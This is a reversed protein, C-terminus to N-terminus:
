WRLAPGGLGLLLFLALGAGLHASLRMLSVARRLHSPTAAAGPDGIFPKPKLVGFYRSPGGLRIGLAGAMAAEPRGANPSDHRGGDRILIEAAARGRGRRLAAAAVILWATLRAPVYNALDDLRAAARGFRLYRPTKYGVMSDLTNVAKYAIALPPGGLVLFFLPAIVGDSANEAVSEIAARTVDATDLDGTERSVLAAVATRAAALDGRDIAEAVALAADALSRAALVTATLYIEVASGAIPHFRHAAAIAVATLAFAVPVIALVLGGGAVIEGVRPVARRRLVAEARTVASGIWRVPHPLWAPDGLVRDLLYGLGFDPATM